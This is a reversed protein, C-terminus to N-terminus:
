GNLPKRGNISCHLCTLYSDEMHEILGSGDMLRKMLKVEYEWVMQGIEEVSISELFEKIDRGEMLDLEKQDIDFNLIGNQDVSVMREVHRYGALRPITAILDKESVVRWSETVTHNYSHAFAKNGVRPSGFNYMKVQPRDTLRFPGNSQNPTLYSKGDVHFNTPVSLRWPVALLTAQRISSGIQQALRLRRQWIM